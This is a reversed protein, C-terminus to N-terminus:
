RDQEQDRLSPYRFCRFRLPSFIFCLGFAFTGVLQGFAAWHHPLVLSLGIRIVLSIFVTLLFVKGLRSSDPPVGKNYDYTKLQRRAPLSTAEKKFSCTHSKRVVPFFVVYFRNDIITDAHACACM